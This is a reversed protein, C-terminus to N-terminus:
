MWRATLGAAKLCDRIHELSNRPLAEVRDPEATLIEGLTLISLKELAITPSVAFGLEAVSIQLDGDSLIRCM